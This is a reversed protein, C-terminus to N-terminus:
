GQNATLIEAGTSKIAITHEFQASRSNDISVATWGDELVVVKSSGESIVPEITFTMGEKM